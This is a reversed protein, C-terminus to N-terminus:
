LCHSLRHTSQSYNQKPSLSNLSGLLCRQSLLKTDRSLFPWLSFGFTHNHPLCGSSVCWIITWDYGRMCVLSFCDYLVTSLAVRWKKVNEKKPVLSETMKKFHDQCKIKLHDGGPNRFTKWCDKTTTNEEEQRDQRPMSEFNYMKTQLSSFVTM